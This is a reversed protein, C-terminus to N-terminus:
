HDGTTDLYPNRLGISSLAQVELAEMEEAEVDIMHDYGLLHFTGHVILHAAHDPVAIGKEAAEAACVGAALVIDGLLVEGDDTNAMAELLDRQVMPFSLVNTPKDKGRYSRNLSQVEDDDTLKVAIEYTAAQTAYDANPSHRLAATVAKLALADWDLEPWEASERLVAVDLM